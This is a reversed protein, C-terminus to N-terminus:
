SNAARSAFAHPTYISPTQRAAQQHRLVHVMYARPSVGNATCTALITRVIDYALRGKRTVRFRSNDLMIKEYRLLRESLNNDPLLRADHFYRTLTKSNKCIYDAAAVIDSNPAFQKQIARCHVLIEEWLLNQDTQRAKLITAANCTERASRDSDFIKDFLLLLTYCYYVIEDDVDNRFRWFPRRCHALCGVTVLNLDTPVPNPANSSSLDSQVFVTQPMKSPNDPRLALIKGLLDGFTKRESHYFVLTTGPQDNLYRGIVVSTFVSKKNGAGDKRPMQSGLLEEIEFLLDAKQPDAENKSQALKEQRKLEDEKSTKPIDERMELVVNNTDDGALISCQALQRFIELYIAAFAKAAYLSIRWIRSPNFYNVTPQLCKALRVMPLGMGFVLLIIQAIGQWTTRFRPPGDDITATKSFGTQPSQVTEVKYNIKKVSLEVEYRARKQYSHNLDSIGDPIDDKEVKIEKTVENLGAAAPQFISEASAQSYSIDNESKEDPVADEPTKNEADNSDGASETNKASRTENAGKKSKKPKQQKYDSWNQRAKKAKEGLQRERKRSWEGNDPKKRDDREKSPVFGMYKRMLAVLKQNSKLLDFAEDCMALMLKVIKTVDDPISLQNNEVWVEFDKLMQRSLTCKETKIQETDFKKDVVDEL